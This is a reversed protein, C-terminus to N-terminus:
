AAHRHVRSLAKIKLRPGWVINSNTFQFKEGYKDRCRSSFDAIIARQELENGSNANSFQTPTLSLDTDWKGRYTVHHTPQLDLGVVELRNLTFTRCQITCQFIITCFTYFQLGAHKQIPYVIYTIRFSYYM